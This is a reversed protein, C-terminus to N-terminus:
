PYKGKFNSAKKKKESRKEHNEYGFSLGVFNISKEQYKNQIVAAFM